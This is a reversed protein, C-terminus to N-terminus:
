LYHMERDYFNYHHDEKTIYDVLATARRLNMILVNELWNYGMANFLQGFAGQDIEDRESDVSDLHKEQEM